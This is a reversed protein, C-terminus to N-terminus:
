KRYIYDHIWSPTHAGYLDPGIKEVLNDIIYHITKQKDGDICDLHISTNGGDAEEFATYPRMIPKITNYNIKPRDIQTITSGPHYTMLNPSYGDVLWQQKWINARNITEDISEKNEWPLGFLLSMYVIFDHKQVLKLAQTARDHRDWLRSRVSNKQITKMTQETLWEGGFFIYSCGSQKMFWLIDPHSQERKLIENFTMQCWRKLQQISEILQTDSSIAAIHSKVWSLLLCREQLITAQGLFITSDEFRMAEWGQKCWWIMQDLANYVMPHITQINPIANIIQAYRDPVNSNIDISSQPTIKWQVDTSESCYFCNYPCGLSSFANITRYAKGKRDFTFFYSNPSYFQYFNHLPRYNQSKWNIKQTLIKDADVYAVIGSGQQVKESLIQISQCERYGDDLVKLLDSLIYTWSMWQASIIYDIYQKMNNSEWLIGHPNIQITNHTWLLSEDCDPWGIITIINRNYEKILKIIHLTYARGPSTTSCLVIDPNHQYLTQMLQDEAQKSRYPYNFIPIDGPKNLASLAFLLSTPTNGPLAYNDDTWSRYPSNIALLKMFFEILYLSLTIVYWIYKELSTLLISNYLKIFM